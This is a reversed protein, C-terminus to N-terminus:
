SDLTKIDLLKLIRNGNAKEIHNKFPKILSLELKSALIELCKSEINFIPLKTHKFKSVM